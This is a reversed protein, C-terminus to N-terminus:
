GSIYKGYPLKSVLFVIASSITLCLIITVPIGVLPNVFNWNIGWDLLEFFVLVHVLFIGYSYKSIFNRVKVLPLFTVDKDKLLLFIGTSYLLINPSLCEYFASSYEGQFHRIFYTGLITSVLGVTLLIWAIINQQRRSSFTKRSLFYGLVLYGLFGSFYSLEVGPKFKEVIPQSFVITFAWIALFYLQEKLSSHRIWKGIIPVFLYVGVIMYIYWFHLSSGDRFQVFFEHAVRYPTLQTGAEFSDFLSKLTYISSWFLFPLLLRVVRKKLFLDLGYEKGLLLAGSLMVFVPVSFRSLSDFLNGIWFSYEPISGSEPQYDSSVHIGIVGITAVVRLNDYWFTKNDAQIM